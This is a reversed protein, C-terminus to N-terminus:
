NHKELAELDSIQRASLLQSTAYCAQLMANRIEGQYLGYRNAYFIIAGNNLRGTRFMSDLVRENNIIILGMELRKRHLEKAIASIKSVQIPSLDIQYRYKIAEAPMPYHNLTAPLAMDYLDEGKLLANYQKYTLTKVPSQPTAASDPPTQANVRSAFIISTILLIFSKFM